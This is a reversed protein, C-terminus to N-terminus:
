RLQGVVFTTSQFTRFNSFTTVNWKFKLQTYLFSMPKEDRQFTYLIMIILLLWLHLKGHNPRSKTMTKITAVIHKKDFFDTLLNTGVLSQQQSLTQWKLRIFSYGIALALLIANITFMITYSSKVVNTFLYSGLAM